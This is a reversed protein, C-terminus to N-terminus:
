SSFTSILSAIGSLTVRSSVMVLKFDKHPKSDSSWVLRIGNWKSESNPAVSVAHAISQPRFLISPIPLFEAGIKLRKYVLTRSIKPRHVPGKTSIGM